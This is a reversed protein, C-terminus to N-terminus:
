NRAPEITVQVRCNLGTERKAIANRSGLGKWHIKDKAVGKRELYEAVAEARRHSLEVNQSEAGVYDDAYGEVVAREGRADMRVTNAVADLRVKAEPSLDARGQAFVVVGTKEHGVQSGGQLETSGKRPVQAQEERQEALLAQQTALRASQEAEHEARTAERAEERAKMAEERAKDAAQRALRADEEAAHERQEARELAAQQASTGGCAAGVLTALISGTAAINM